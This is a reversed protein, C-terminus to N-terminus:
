SNLISDKITLLQREQREQLKTNKWYLKLLPQYNISLLKPKEM